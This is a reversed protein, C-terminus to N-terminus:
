HRLLKIWLKCAETITMKPKDSIKRDFILNLAWVLNSPENELENLIFPVATKGMAVIAKFDKQEVIDYASSLFFTEEQWSELLLEFKRKAILMNEEQNDVEQIYRSTRSSSIVTTVNTFQDVDAYAFVPAAMFLSTAITLPKFGSKLSALQM